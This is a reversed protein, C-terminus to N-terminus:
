PPSDAFIQRNEPSYVSRRSLFTLVRKRTFAKENRRHQRLFDPDQLKHRLKELLAISLLTAPNKLFTESQNQM